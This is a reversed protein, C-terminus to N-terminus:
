LIRLFLLKKVCTEECFTKKLQQKDTEIEKLFHKFPMLSIKQM